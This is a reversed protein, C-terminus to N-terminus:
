TLIITSVSAVNSFICIGEFRCIATPRSIDNDCDKLFEYDKKFYTVLPTKSIPTENEKWQKYADSYWEICKNYIFRTCGFFQFMKEQQEKNPYIRYKYAKYM